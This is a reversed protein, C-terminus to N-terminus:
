REYKEFEKIKTNYFSLAEDLDDGFYHGNLWSGTKFDLCSAVIFKEGSINYILYYENNNNEKLVVCKGMGNNEFEM